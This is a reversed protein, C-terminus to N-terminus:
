AAAPGPGAPAGAPTRSPAPAGGDGRRGQVLVWVLYLASAAVLAAVVGRIGAYYAGAFNLAVGAIATVVKPAILARTSRGSLVTLVAVQASAFLGGALVVWPLLESVGRYEAAVLLRFLQGHAVAAVGVALLTAALSLAVLRDNIRRVDRMRGADSADGARRYLYPSVLQVGLGAVLTVPYFGCQFLVGYLGVEDRPRFVALAWRDSALQAWTFLGWAAFPWAYELMTRSWSAGPPRPHSPAPASAGRPAAPRLTQRAFIAQSALVAASAVAYGAMAAASSAGAVAVVGFAALYRLWEGVGQHLAAVGRRRAAIQISGLSQAVGALAAFTLAASALGIRQGHGSWWLGLALVPVLGLILATALLLLRRVARSYAELDRAEEAPAYFRMIASALPSLLVQQLLLAATLGLVLDGYVATPLAGTLIRVGALGAAAALAQGVTTWALEGGLRTLRAARVGVGVRGPLAVGRISLGRAVDREAAM